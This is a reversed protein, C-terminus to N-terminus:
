IEVESTRYRGGAANKKCNINFWLYRGGTDPAMAPTSSACTGSAAPKEPIVGDEAFPWCLEIHLHMAGVFSSSNSSRLFKETIGLMSRVLPMLRGVDRPLEERQAPSRIVKGVLNAPPSSQQLPPSSPLM